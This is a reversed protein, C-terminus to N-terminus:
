HEITAMSPTSTLLCPQPGFLIYPVLSYHLFLFILPLRNINGQLGLQWKGSQLNNPNKIKDAMDDDDDDDETDLNLGAPLINYM